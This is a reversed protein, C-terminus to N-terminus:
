QPVGQQTALVLVGSTYQQWRSGTRSYLVGDDGLLRVSGLQNGGAIATVTAQVATAAALGGVEQTFIMSEGDVVRVIGLTVDDLWAVAVGPSPQVALRMWQGLRVPVGQDRVVGAIWVEAQGGLDTLAAIRTGDRSLQMANIRSAGNWADAVEVVTGDAATAHVSAPRTAPVTWIYGYRDVTPMVLGDRADVSVYSEDSNLRMVEGSDLQLAAYDLDPSLEIATPQLGSAVLGDSIGPVPQLEDGALYGFGEETLVAFRADVLTTRTPAPEVEIEVSGVTMVVDTIGASILSRELQAQMRALQEPNLGLAADPVEVQAVGDASVTVAGPAGIDGPFATVVAGSLWPSPEGDVLARVIRAPTTRNRAPFWRVDPVLYEWAPDFYMLSFAGFVRPFLGRDLVVGDDLKSIRWEGDVRAVEFPLRSSGSDTEIYAGAEDVDAVPEVSLLFATPATQTLERAAQDDVTVGAEPHWQAAAQETLFQRAVQWGDTPSTAAAVFGEIIQEPSAGPQPSSPRFAVAFGDDSTDPALGQQVSGSTPMGACAALLVAAVAAVVPALIGRRM